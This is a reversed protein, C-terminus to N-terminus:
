EKTKEILGRVLKDVNDKFSTRVIEKFVKIQDEMTAKDAKLIFTTLSSLGEEGYISLLLWDHFTRYNEHQKIQLDTFTGIKKDLNNLQQYLSEILSETLPVSEDVRKVCNCQTCLPMEERKLNYKAYAKEFKDVRRDYVDKPWLGYVRCSLPRDKYVTCLGDKGLLMCPKVMTEMGWKSYEYRFFYEVSTCVIDLLDDIKKNEYISSLIQLFESYNIQPMAVRCCEGRNKCTTELSVTDHYVSQLVSRLNTRKRNIKNQRKAGLKKHKKQMNKSRNGM